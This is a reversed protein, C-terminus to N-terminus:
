CSRSSGSCCRAQKKEETTTPTSAREHAMSTDRPSIVPPIIPGGDVGGDGTVVFLDSALSLRFSLYPVSFYVVVHMYM